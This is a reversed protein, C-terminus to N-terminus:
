ILKNLINGIIKNQSKLLKLLQKSTLLRKELKTITEIYQNNKQLLNENENLLRYNEEEFNIITEVNRKNEDTLHKNEELLRLNDEELETIIYNPYLEKTFKDNKSIVKKENFIYDFSYNDFKLCYYIVHNDLNMSFAIESAIIDAIHKSDTIKYKQLIKTFDDYLINEKQVNHICYHTNGNKKFRSIFIKM